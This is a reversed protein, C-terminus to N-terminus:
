DATTCIDQSQPHDPVEITPPTPSSLPECLQAHVQARSDPIRLGEQQLTSIPLPFSSEARAM